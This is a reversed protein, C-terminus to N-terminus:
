VPDKASEHLSKEGSRNTTIYKRCIQPATHLMFEALNEKIFMIVKKDDWAYLSTGPLDIIVVDIGKNAHIAGTTSISEIMVTPSATETKKMYAWQKCRDACVRAKQTLLMLSVIPKERDENITTHDDVPEFTYLDHLQMIEKQMEHEGQKGHLKLGKVLIHWTMIYEM